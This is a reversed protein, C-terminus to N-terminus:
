FPATFFEQLSRLSDFGRLKSQFCTTQWQVVGVDKWIMSVLCVLELAILGMM